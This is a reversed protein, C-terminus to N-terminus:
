RARIFFCLSRAYRQAQTKEYNLKQYICGEM